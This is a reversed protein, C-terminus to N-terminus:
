HVSNDLGIASFFLNNNIGGFIDVNQRNFGPSNGALFINFGIWVSKYSYGPHNIQVCCGCETFRFFRNKQERNYKMKPFQQWRPRHLKGCKVM